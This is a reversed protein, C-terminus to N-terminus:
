TDSNGPIALKNKLTSPMLRPVWKLYARKSFFRTGISPPTSIECELLKYNCHRELLYSYADPLIRWCDVPFRHPGISYPTIICVLGGSKTIKEVEKIWLFPNEVHELCNGSVVVDYQTEIGFEYPAKTVIDVNPGKVRDRICMESGM